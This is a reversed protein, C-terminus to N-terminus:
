QFLKAYNLQSRKCLSDNELKYLEILDSWKAIVEKKTIPNSFTLKQM